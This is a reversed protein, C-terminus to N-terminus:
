NQGEFVEKLVAGMLKESDKKNEKIRLELEDCMKILSDVKEVIRKQESLPPLPVLFNNMTRLSVNKITTGSASSIAHNLFYNTKILIKIYNKNVLNLLNFYCASKGLVIKENNYFAINGITGNISVFVTRDNLIKKYKDYEENSVTKTNEKIEIEGDSLNNGNIFYYEGDVSYKPTGHLGDGLLSVLGNLRCWVWRKPLEYPIKDEEIAPLEKGKKIKGEKILKEKEKKIKKLLEAAPEDEKNQPVLKGQVAEQLISQKLSSLLTKDNKSNNLVQFLNEGISQLRLINKETETDFYKKNELCNDRLCELFNVIKEQIKKDPIPFELKEIQKGSINPQAGGYGFGKVREQIGRALWYIYKNYFEKPKLIQFKGVRQNLYLKGLGEQVIGLKGITGGTMAIIIDGEFLQYKDYETKEEYFKASSLDIKENQFDSIRIVPIGDSRYESSKFAYGGLIRIHKGLEETKIKQSLYNNILKLYTSLNNYFVEQKQNEGITIQQGKM